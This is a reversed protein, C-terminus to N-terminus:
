DTAISSLSVGRGMRPLYPMRCAIGCLLKCHDSVQSSSFGSDEVIAKVVEFSRMRLCYTLLEVNCFARLIRYLIKRQRQVPLHSVHVRMSMIYMTSM